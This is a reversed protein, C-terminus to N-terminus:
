HRAGRAAPGGRRRLREHRRCRRNGAPRATLHAREPDRDAQPCPPAYDVCIYGVGCVRHTNGATNGLPSHQGPPSRGGEVGWGRRRRGGYRRGAGCPGERKARSGRAQGFRAQARESASAAGRPDERRLSRKGGNTRTAREAEHGREGYPASGVRLNADSAGRRTGERTERQGMERGRHHRQQWGAPCAIAGDRTGQPRRHRWRMSPRAAASVGDRGWHSRPGVVGGGGTGGKTVRGQRAQPGASVREAM